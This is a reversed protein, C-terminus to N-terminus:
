IGKIVKDAARSLGKALDEGAKKGHSDHAHEMFHQGPHYRGNQIYGGNVIGGYWAGKPDDRSKGPDIFVKVGVEGRKPKRWARMKVARKLRGSRNRVGGRAAALVPKMATRMARKAAKKFEIQAPKGLNELTKAIKDGGSVSMKTFDM